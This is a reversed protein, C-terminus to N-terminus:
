EQRTERASVAEVVACFDALRDLREGTTLWKDCLKIYFRKSRDVCSLLLFNNNRERSGNVSLGHLISNSQIAGPSLL